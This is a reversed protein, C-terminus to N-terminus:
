DNRGGLQNIKEWLRTKVTKLTQLLLLADIPAKHSYFTQELQSCNITDDLVFTAKKNSDVEIDKLTTGSAILYASVELSVTRYTKNENNSIMTNNEDTYLRLLVLLSIKELNSLQQLIGQLLAM